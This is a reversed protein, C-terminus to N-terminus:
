KVPDTLTKMVLWPYDLKITHAEKRNRELLKEQMEEAHGESDRLLKAVSLASKLFVVEKAATTRQQQTKASTFNDLANTLAANLNTIREENNNAM